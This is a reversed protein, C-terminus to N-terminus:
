HLPRRLPHKRSIPTAPMRRPARALTPEVGHGATLLLREGSRVDLTLGTRALAEALARLTRRGTLGVLCAARGRRPCVVVMQRSAAGAVKVLTIEVDSFVDLM